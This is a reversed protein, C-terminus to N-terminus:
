YCGMDISHNQSLSLPLPLPTFRGLLRSVVLFLSISHIFLVAFLLFLAIMASLEMWYRVLDLMRM